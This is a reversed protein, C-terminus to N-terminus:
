PAKRRWVNPDDLMGPRTLLSALFRTVDETEGTLLMRGDSELHAVSRPSRKVLAELSDQRVFSFRVIAGISDVILATHLPLVLDKYMEGVATKVDAPWVDLVRHGAITGLRAGFRAVKGQDDKYTIVYAGASDHAIVASEEGKKDTWAGLLRADRMSARESVIPSISAVGCASLLTALAIGIAPRISRM